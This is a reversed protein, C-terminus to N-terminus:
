YLDFSIWIVIVAPAQVAVTIAIFVVDRDHSAETVLLQLCFSPFFHQCDIAAKKIGVFALM